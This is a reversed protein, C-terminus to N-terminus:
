AAQELRFVTASGELAVTAQVLDGGVQIGYLKDAGPLAKDESVIADEQPVDARRLTM